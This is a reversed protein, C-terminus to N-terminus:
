LKRRIDSGIFQYFSFHKVIRSYIREGYLERLELPNKNTSILMQKGQETRMNVIHFLETEVFSNKIESGLDDIILLDSEFILKRTELGYQREFEERRFTYTELCQLLERITFYIVTRYREIARKAICSSMYSKGLGTGGWFVLSQENKGIAEAFNEMDKRIALILQRQTLTRGDAMAILTENDFLDARFREFNENELRRSMNSNIYSEKTILEKLCICPVYRGRGDEIYGTDRCRKCFHQLKFEAETLHVKELEEKRQQRLMQLREQMPAPDLGVVKARGIHIHEGAILHDLEEIRPYKAYLSRKRKELERKSEERRMDYIYELRRNM